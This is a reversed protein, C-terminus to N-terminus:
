CARVVIQRDLRQDGGAVATPLHFFGQQGLVARDALQAHVGPRDGLPGGRGPQWETHHPYQNTVHGAHTQDDDVGTPHDHTVPRGHVEQFPHETTKPPELERPTGCGGGAPRLAVVEAFITTAPPKPTPLVVSPPDTASTTGRAGSATMVSALMPWSSREAVGLLVVVVTAMSKPRSDSSESRSRYRNPVGPGCRTQTM